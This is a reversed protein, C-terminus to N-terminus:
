GLRGANGQQRCQHARLERGRGSVPGTLRCHGGTADESAPRTRWCHGGTADESAREARSAQDALLAKRNRGKVGSRSVAEAM